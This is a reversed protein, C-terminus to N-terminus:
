VKGARAVRPNGFVGGRNYVKLFIVWLISPGLGLWMRVSGEYLRAM